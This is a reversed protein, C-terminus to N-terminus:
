AKVEEIYVDLSFKFRGEHEGAFIEELMCRKCYFKHRTESWGNESYTASCSSCQHPINAIIYDRIESPMKQIAEWNKAELRSKEEKEAVLLQQSIEYQQKDLEAKKARLEELTM